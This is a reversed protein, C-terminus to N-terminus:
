VCCSGRAKRSSCDNADELSSPLKCSNGQAKGDLLGDPECPNFRVIWDRIMTQLGVSGVPVGKPRLSSEHIEALVLL